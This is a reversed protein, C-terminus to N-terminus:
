ILKLYQKVVKNWKFQKSFELANVGLKKHNDNNFFKLITEYISNLNNGDCIFGTEGNKIADREGGSSGGISGKGYSAAEIFSIGFGEVSKKYTISPMLFLDAENILANKLNEESKHIFLVENKLDLEEKLKNLNDKEEGDGISIYKIDPFKPKLNKITMLVNQHNKRKDLRAVTIIKPFSNKFINKAKNEYEKVIDIPYNSGPNIVKIKSSDIGNKIALKKTFSSNAIIYKAKNFSKQMRKNLSSGKEHNIEKSHILCFSPIEIIANNDINEISKWHDFFLARVPNNKIFDIVLNAKRYKRFIKFGSVRQINLKSNKDYSEYGDFSDAFVKVPGHNVLANSLGEMLNQIGGVDPPFNRTSIVFM